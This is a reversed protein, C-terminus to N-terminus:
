KSKKNYELFYHAPMEVLLLLLLLIQSSNLIEAWVCVCVFILRCHFGSCAYGDAFFPDALLQVDRVVVQLVDLAERQGAGVLLLDGVQAVREVLERAELLEVQRAVREHAELAELAALAELPEVEVVIVYHRQLLHLPELVVLLQGLEVQPEVRDCLYTVMAQLAKSSKGLKFSRLFLMNLTLLWLFITKM